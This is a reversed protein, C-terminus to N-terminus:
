LEELLIDLEDLLTDLEDLSSDGLEDLPIDLEDSSSDELEVLHVDVTRGGPLYSQLM